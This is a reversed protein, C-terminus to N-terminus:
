RTPLLFPSVSGGRRPPVAYEVTGDVGFRLVSWQHGRHAVVLTHRANEWVPKGLKLQDDHSWAALVSGSRAARFRLKLDGTAVVRDGDTSFGFLKESCTRWLAVGLDKFVGNCGTTKKGTALGDANAAEVRSMGTTDVIGHSSSVWAGRGTNVVIACGNSTEGEKCTKAGMIAGIQRPQSVRPLTFSRSGAGEVVRPVGLPTVWGVISHDPSAALRLGAIDSHRVAHGSADYQFVISAEGNFVAVLGRGMPAFAVPRSDLGLRTGDTRRMTWAQDETGIHTGVVYTIAPRAGTHLESVLIPIPDAGAGQKASQEASAGDLGTVAAVGALPLSVTALLLGLRATRTRILRNSMITM